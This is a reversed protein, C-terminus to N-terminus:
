LIRVEDSRSLELSLVMECFLLRQQLLSMSWGDAKRQRRM